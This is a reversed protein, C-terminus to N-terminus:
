PPPPPFPKVPAVSVFPTETVVFIVFAVFIPSATRNAASPPRGRRAGVLRVARREDENRRQEQSATEELLSRSRGVVIRDIFRVASMVPAEEPIPSAKASTNADSPKSRAIVARRSSRRCATASRNRVFYPTRTSTNTASRDFRSATSCSHAWTAARPM